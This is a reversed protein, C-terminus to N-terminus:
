REVEMGSSLNLEKLVMVSQTRKYFQFGFEQSAILFSVEEPSEAEYKLKGTNDDEVPIGTHCLALVRLFMAIDSSQPRNIWSKNLLRYDKFNFGKVISEKGLRALKENNNSPNKIDEGVSMTKLKRFSPEAVSFEFTDLSQSVSSSEDVSLLYKELDANMRQSAALDVETVEGGYSVGSISCKRFEMQNCTLTGTKDSLIMEVQGLEENLNSTRAMASNCTEEDYMQIDSNILVAQLVKVVEISVYLSVPILYGYLILARVFQLIGSWKPRKPNFFQDKGDPQLYWWNLMQFETYVTSGVASIFSIFFLMTFLTYIIHDMKREIRSRKSPSRTSNKGVKADLGSFIVVGYIYETNCLKSDRLLVQAPSLAYMQDEFEFNGIFSYLSPNPDECRITAKFNSFEVDHDLSLTAELCRKLKLNTEGDLNMTEVYCIGDDYSSSLLLIDSPFYENKEVKVVDGVYLSKWTKEKFNGNGIHVKVTRSNVKLDQLRFM